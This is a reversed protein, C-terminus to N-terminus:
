DWHHVHGSSIDHADLVKRVAGRVGKRATEVEALITLIETATRRKRHDPSQDTEESIHPPSPPPIPAPPAERATAPAATNAPTHPPTPTPPLTASRGATVAPIPSLPPPPPPAPLPSSSKPPPPIPAAPSSPESGLARYVTSRVQLLGDVTYNGHQKRMSRENGGRIQDLINAAKRVNPIDLKRLRAALEEESVEREPLEDPHLHRSQQFLGHVHRGSM